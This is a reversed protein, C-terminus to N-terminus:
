KVKSIRQLAIEWYKKDIESGIFNRKITQLCDENYIEM